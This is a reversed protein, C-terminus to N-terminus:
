FPIVISKAANLHKQLNGYEPESLKRRRKMESEDLVLNHSVARPQTVVDSVWYCLEPSLPKIERKNLKEEQKM